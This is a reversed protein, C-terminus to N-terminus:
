RPAEGPAVWGEDDGVVSPTRAVIADTARLLAQMAERLSATFPPLPLRVERMVAELRALSEEPLNSRMWLERADAPVGKRKVAALTEQVRKDPPLAGSEEIALAAESAAGPLASAAMELIRVADRYNAAQRNIATANNDMRAALLRAETPGLVAIARVVRSLLETIPSLTALWPPVGKRDPGREPPVVHLVEDYRFDPVPPDLALNGFTISLAEFGAASLFLAAASAQGGPSFLAIFAIVTTFAALDVNIEATIRCADKSFSVAVKIRLPASTQTPYSNNFEDLLSFDVTYLFNKSEPGDGPGDRRWLPASTWQWAQSLGPWTAQEGAGSLIPLLPPASVPAPTRPGGPEQQM